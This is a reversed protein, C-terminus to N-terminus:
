YEGEYDKKLEAMSQPDGIITLRDGELIVTSGKPVITQGQRRLIAVLCGEPFRIDKLAKDILVDSSSDREVLLSLLRDEHLVAEKLEQEDNASQWEEAFGDEEVRGAIQALIRLHQTPDKEPSVLFFIAGVDAEDEDDHDKLPDRFKIHIGERGRALVLEAHDLGRLRLHPLAIGHTVPTAGMRTGDLFMKEIESPTSDVFQSIWESAKRVATEFVEKEKYDIVFSRTVIDDFPDSERLGKEKLIGRLETDLGDFRLRGLREFM